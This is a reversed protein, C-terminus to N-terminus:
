LLVTVANLLDQGATDIIDLLVDGGTATAVEGGDLELENTGFILQTFQAGTFGGPQGPDPFNICLSVVEELGDLNGHPVTESMAISVAQIRKLQDVSSEGVIMYFNQDGAVQIRWSPTNPYDPDGRYILTSTAGTISPMAVDGIRV